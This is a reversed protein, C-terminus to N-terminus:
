ETAGTLQRVARLPAEGNEDLLQMNAPIMFRDGGVRPPLNERRRVENASMLGNQVATQYAAFRSTTDGRLLMEFLLEAFVNPSGIVNNNYANEWRVAWSTLTDVVYNTNEQEVNNFHARELDQIKHPPVRFWRAIEEVQFRRTELFQSDENSMGVAAWDMGEELLIPANSKNANFEDHISLKLRDYAADSLSAPHKLVGGPHAGNGFFTAGHRETAMSLAIGQRALTIISVGSYGNLSIGPLHFVERRTLTVREGSDNLKVHYVVEFDKLQEVEVRDPRLPLMETVMRGAPNKLAYFNGRLLATATGFERFQQSTMHPAPRDHVLKWFPSSTARRRDDGAEYLIFPLKGIDEAIVRVCAFVAAVNIASNASVDIGSWTEGGRRLFAELESSQTIEVNTPELLKSFFGTAREM